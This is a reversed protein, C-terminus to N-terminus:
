SSRRRNLRKIFFAERKPDAALEREILEVAQPGPPALYFDVLAEMGRRGYRTLQLIEARAARQMWPPLESWRALAAGLRFRVLSFSLDRTLFAMELAELAAAKQAPRSAVLPHPMIEAPAGDSAGESPGDPPGDPNLAWAQQARLKEERLQEAYVLRAWGSASSPALALSVRQVSVGAEIESLAFEPDAVERRARELKLLALDGYTNPASGRWSTARELAEIAITLAASDPRQGRGLELIVPRSPRAALAGLGRPGAAALLAAGVLLVLGAAWGNLRDTSIINRLMATIAPAM